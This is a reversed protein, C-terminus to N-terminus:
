KKWSGLYYEHPFVLKSIDIPQNKFQNRNADEFLEHLDALFELQKDTPENTFLALMTTHRGPVFSMWQGGVIETTKIGEGFVEKTVSGYSSLMPILLDPDVEFNGLTSLPIGSASEYIAYAKAKARHRRRIHISKGETISGEWAKPDIEMITSISNIERQYHSYLEQFQAQNIKGQAFDDALKNIKTKVKSIYNNAQEVAKDHDNVPPPPPTFEPTVNGAKNADEEEENKFIRTLWRM